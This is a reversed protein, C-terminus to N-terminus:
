EAAGGEERGYMEQYIEDFSRPEPLLYEPGQYEDKFDFVWSDFYRLADRSIKMPWDIFRLHNPSCEMSLAIEKIVRSHKKLVLISVTKGAFLDPARKRLAIFFKDTLARKHEELWREREEKQRKIVQILRWETATLYDERGCNEVRMADLGAKMGAQSEQSMPHPIGDYVIPKMDGRLWEKGNVGEIGQTKADSVSRKRDAAHGLHQKLFEPLALAALCIATSLDNSTALPWDVGKGM